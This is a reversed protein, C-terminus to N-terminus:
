GGGPVQIFIQGTAGTGTTWTGIQRSPVPLDYTMATVRANLQAATITGNFSLDVAHPITSGDWVDALVATTIIAAVSLTLTLLVRRM